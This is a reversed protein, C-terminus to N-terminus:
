DVPISCSLDDLGFNLLVTKEWEDLTLECMM